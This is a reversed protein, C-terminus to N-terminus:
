ARRPARMPAQGTVHGVAKRLCPTCTVAEVLDTSDVDNPDRGLDAGCATWGGGPSPHCGFPIRWHTKGV